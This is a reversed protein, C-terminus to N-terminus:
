VSIEHTGLLTVVPSHYINRIGQIHQTPVFIAGTKVSAEEKAVTRRKQWQIHQAAAHLGTVV